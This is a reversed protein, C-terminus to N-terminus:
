SYSFVIGSMWILLDARPRLALSFRLIALQGVNVLGSCPLSGTPTLPTLGDSEPFLFNAKSRDIQWQDRWQCGNSWIYGGSLVQHIGLLLQRRLLYSVHVRVCHGSILTGGHFTQAAGAYYVIACRIAM